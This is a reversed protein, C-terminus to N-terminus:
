LVVSERLDPPTRNFSPLLSKYKFVVKFSCCFRKKGDSVPLDGKLRPLISSAFGAPM